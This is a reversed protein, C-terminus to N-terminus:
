SERNVLVINIGTLDPLALVSKNKPSRAELEKELLIQVQDFMLYYPM